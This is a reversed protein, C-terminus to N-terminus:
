ARPSSRHEGDVLHRRRLVSVMRAVLREAELRVDPRGDRDVALHVARDVERRRRGAVNREGLGVELDHADRGPPDPADDLAVQALKAQLPGLATELADEVRLILKLPQELGVPGEDLDVIGCEVECPHTTLLQDPRLEPVARPPLDRLLRLVVELGGDHPTGGSLEDAVGDFNLARVATRHGDVERELWRM